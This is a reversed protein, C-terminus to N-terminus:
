QVVITLSFSGTATHAGEWVRYYRLELSCTGPENAQFFSRKLGPSGLLDPRDPTFAECLPQLVSPDLEELHWDAGTSPNSVLSIVLLEGQRLRVTRGDDDADLCTLHCAQRDRSDRAPKAEQAAATTVSALLLLALVVAHHSIRSM